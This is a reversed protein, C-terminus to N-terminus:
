NTSTITDTNLPMIVATFDDRYDFRLPAGAKPVSTVEWRSEIGALRSLFEVSIATKFKHWLRILAYSYGQENDEIGISYTEKVKIPTVQDTNPYDLAM